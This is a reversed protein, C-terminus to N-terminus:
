YGNKARDYAISLAYLSNEEVSVQLQQNNIEDQQSKVQKSSIFGYKHGEELYTLDDENDTLDAYSTQLSNYSDMLDEYKAQFASKADVIAQSLATRANMVDYHNQDVANEAGDLDIEKAKITSSNKLMRTLDTEFDIAAIGDFDHQSLPSVIAETDESLGLTIRLNRLQADAQQVAKDLGVELDSVQSEYSDRQKKSMFGKAYGQEYFAHNKEQSALTDQQINEQVLLSLYSLYQQQAALVLQGVQQDYIIQASALSYEMADGSERMTTLQASISAAEELGGPLTLDVVALEAVLASTDALPTEGLLAALQALISAAEESGGPLTLDVADLKAELDSITNLIDDYEAQSKDLNHSAISIDPSNRHLITEISQLSITVKDKTSDEGAAFATPNASLMMAVLLIAARKKM